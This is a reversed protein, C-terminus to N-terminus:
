RSDDLLFDDARDLPRIWSSDDYDLLQRKILALDRADPPFPYNRLEGKAAQFPTCNSYPRNCTIFGNGDKCGQTLFAIGDAVLEDLRSQQMGFDVLQGRDNFSMGDMPGAGRHIAERALQMRRYRGIGPQPDHEMSSGPEPFFSFLHTDSGLEHVWQMVAVAEQETEGIGIMLHAGANEPGFVGIAERLAGWYRNWSHPGRVGSGRLADFLPETAADIAIDVKDVGTAHLEKLWAEDVVTPAILVSLAKGAPAMKRVVEITDGKARPHTVMSICVRNIGAADASQLAEVFMSTPYVPWRVRIFSKGQQTGDAKRERGLGCFACNARCGDAYTLLLNLCHLKADRYFTGKEFGLALAGATSTQLYDPSEVRQDREPDM